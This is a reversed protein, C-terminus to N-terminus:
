IKQPVIMWALKVVIIGLSYAIQGQEWVRIWEQEKDKGARWIREALFCHSKIEVPLNLAMFFKRQIYNWRRHYQGVKLM